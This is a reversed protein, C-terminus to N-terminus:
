DMLVATGPTTTGTANTYAAITPSAASAAFAITTYGIFYTRKTTSRVSTNWMIPWDYPTMNIIGSTYSANGTVNSVKLTSGYTFNFTGMIGATTVTINSCAWTTAYTTAAATISCAIGTDGVSAPVTLFYGSTPGSLTSALIVIGAYNAASLPLPLSGMM